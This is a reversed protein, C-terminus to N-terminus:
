DMRCYSHFDIGAEAMIRLVQYFRLGRLEEGRQEVLKRMTRVSSARRNRPIAAPENNRDDKDLVSFSGHVVQITVHPGQIVLDNVGLPKVDVGRRVSTHIMLEFATAVTRLVNAAAAYTECSQLAESVIGMADVMKAERYGHSYLSIEGLRKGRKGAGNTDTVRVSDAYAHARFNGAPYEVTRGIELRNREEALSVVNTSVNVEWPARTGDRGWVWMTIGCWILTLVKVM